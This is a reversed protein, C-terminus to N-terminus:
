RYRSCSARPSRHLPGSTGRSARQAGIRTSRNTFWFLSGFTFTQINIRFRSIRTIHYSQFQVPFLGFGRIQFTEQFFNQPNKRTTYPFHQLGHPSCHTEIPISIRMKCRRPIYNSSCIVKVDISVYALEGLHRDQM